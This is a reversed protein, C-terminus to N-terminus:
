RRGGARGVNSYWLLIIIVIIAVVVPWLNVFDNDDVFFINEVRKGLFLFNSGRKWFDRKLFQSLGSSVFM